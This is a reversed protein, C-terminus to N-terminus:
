ASISAISGIIEDSDKLAQVFELDLKRIAEIAGSGEKYDRLDFHRNVAVFIGSMQDLVQSRSSARRLHDQQPTMM